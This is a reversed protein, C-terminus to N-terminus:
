KAFKGTSTNIRVKVDDHAILLRLFMEGVAKPVMLSPFNLEADELCYEKIECSEDISVFIVADINNLRNFIYSVFHSFNIEKMHVCCVRRSSSPEYPELKYAQSQNVMRAWQISESPMTHKIWKAAYKRM